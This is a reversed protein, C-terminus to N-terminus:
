CLAIKSRVPLAGTCFTTGSASWCTSAANAAITVGAIMTAATHPKLGSCSARMMWAASRSEATSVIKCCNGRNPRIPEPRGMMMPALKVKTGANRAMPTSIPNSATRPACITPPTSTIAHAASNRRMRKRNGGTTIPVTMKTIPRDRQGTATLDMAPPSPAAFKPASSFQITPSVVKAIVKPTPVYALPVSFSPPMRSPMMPPNAAANRRSMTSTEPTPEAAHNESGANMGKRMTNSGAAQAIIPTTEITFMTWTM